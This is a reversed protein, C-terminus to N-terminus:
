YYAIDRTMVFTEGNTTAKRRIWNGRSDFLYGSYEMRVVIGSAETSEAVVVKRNDYERTTTTTMNGLSPMASTVAKIMGHEWEYTQVVTVGGVKLVATKIYGDADYDADDLDYYEEEDWEYDTDNLYEIYEYETGNLDIFETGNLDVLTGNLDIFATGNLDIFETGNLDVLTGNLDIFGTGNEDYYYVEGSENFDNSVNDVSENLGNRLIGQSALYSIFGLDDPLINRMVVDYADDPGNNTVTITWNVTTLDSNAFEEISMQGSNIKELIDSLNIVAKDSTITIVLDCLPLVKILADDRNNELNIEYTESATEVMATVNVNSRNPNTLVIITVNDGSELDGVLWTCSENDFSAGPVGVTSDIIDLGLEKLDNLSVTVNQAKDPGSNSLIITLNVDSRSDNTM